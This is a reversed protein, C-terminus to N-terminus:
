ILGFLLWLHRFDQVDMTMADFAVLCLGLRLAEQLADASKQTARAAFLLVFALAGPFGITGLLDFLTSHADLPQPASTPRPWPTLAPAEGPGVGFLPNRAFSEFASQATRWRLGKASSLTWGTSDRYIDFRVSAIALLGLLVVAVVRARGLWQWALGALLALLTRSLTLLMTVGLLTIITRRWKASFLDDVTIAAWLPVLCIAALMNSTTCVGKPRWAFGLDGGRASYLLSQVHLLSLVSGVLGLICLGICGATWARLLLRRDQAWLSTVGFLITLEAIGLVKMGGARHVWASVGAWAAYAIAAWGGRPVRIPVRAALMTLAALPVLFDAWAAHGPIPPAPDHLGMLAAFAALLVLAVRNV